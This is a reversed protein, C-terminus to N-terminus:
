FLPSFIYGSVEQTATTAATVASAWLGCATFVTGSVTQTYTCFVGSTTLAFQTGAVAASIKNQIVTAFGRTMLWGYYGTTITANVCLGVLIGATITSPAAVAVDVSYSTSGSALKAGRGIDIFENSSANYIYVWECGNEWRRSGIDVTPTATVASVSEEYLPPLNFSANGAM